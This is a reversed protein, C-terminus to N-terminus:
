GRSQGLYCDCQFSTILSGVLGSAKGQNQQRPQGQPHASLAQHLWQRMIRHKPSTIKWIFDRAHSDVDIGLMDMWTLALFPWLQWVSLPLLSCSEMSMRHHSTCLHSWRTDPSWSLSSEVLAHSAWVPHKSSMRLLHTSNNPPCRAHLKAWTDNLSWSSLVYSRGLQDHM